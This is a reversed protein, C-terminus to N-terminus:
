KSKSKSNLYGDLLDKMCPEITAGRALLWEVVKYKKKLLARSLLDRGDVYVSYDVGPPAAATLWDVSDEKSHTIYAGLIDLFLREKLRDDFGPESPMLEVRFMVAPNAVLAPRDNVFKELIKQNESMRKRKRENTDVTKKNESM